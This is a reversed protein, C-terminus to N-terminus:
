TAPTAPEGPGHTEKRMDGMDFVEAKKLFKGMGDYLETASDRVIPILVTTNPLGEIEAIRITVGGSPESALALNCSDLV